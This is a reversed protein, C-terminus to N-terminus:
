ARMLVAGEGGRLTISAIIPGRSGDANLRRYNGGLQHITATADATTGTGVGLTYSLPKYLSIANQYDRRLVRYTLRSNEPDSGTVWTMMSGTPRGVDVAAAPVWVTNWAAAPSQGGNFMLFTKDPNALLYYYALSGMQSRPDNTPLRGSHTDLIVYPSPSDANLRRAVLDAIDRVQAWNSSNPRLIFEEFVATSARAVPDGEAISGATNSVTWKPAIAISITAVLAAYDRTFATVSEKVATGAFPLKGHSNDLFLGDALPNQVLLRLNYDVNWQKIAASSPNVVFRSQGYYPYFLRSEYEFRADFGPRRNRYEGESLYGDGSSDASTDFAPITGEARGNAQVYDRGFITKALPAEAATGGVTRIRLQHLRQNTGAVRSSVWDAPPDFTIAGSTRLGGTGDSLVALATWVSPSGDANVASVYEIAGSWGTAAPRTITFNLERFREPYGLIVSTGAGGFTVGPDRTGRAQATLDTPTGTGDTNVRQVNWLQNVPQSSPSAGTFATAQAVHYFAQERPMRNADAYANWDTLLSGYINSLNTYIVKTTDAAVAEFARLYQPNPIILDLSNRVLELEFPGVPNGSYALQSLRIHSYKRVGTSRPVSGIENPNVVPPPNTPLPQGTAVSSAPRIEFDDFWVAGSATRGREVGVSGGGGIRTDSMALAAVRLTSWTGDAALWRNTDTRFVLAKLEGGDAVLTLRVWKGSVYDSSRITGLLTETGGVVSKLQANVGRTLTLSYYTPQATDLQSGRVFVGSPILSDAYISISAATDAHFSETLWARSRTTSLGNSALAQAPSLVRGSGVTFATPQNNSWIKWNAPLSGPALTDFPENVGPPALLAFDDIFAMGSGGARRGVGIFGDLSPVTTRARLAEVEAAQWTGDGGLYAGTDLRRVTVGAWEGVPKLSIRLWQGAVSERSQVTGLSRAAGNTVEILEISRSGSFEAAVYSPNATDLGTGRAIVDVRASIGARVSFAAGYDGPLISRHWIRASNTAAGLSALSNAGSVAALKSTIYQQQGDNSWALWDAPLAPVALADFTEGRWGGSPNERAELLELTQRIATATRSMTIIWGSTDITDTTRVARSEPRVASNAEVALRLFRTRIGTLGGAERPLNEDM